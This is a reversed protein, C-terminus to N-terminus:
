FVSEPTVQLTPLYAPLQLSSVVYHHTQTTRNGKGDSSHTEYSYDFAAFPRDGLQGTVVNRARRHDGDNFPPGSWRSCWGDDEVAFNYGNGASWQLLM